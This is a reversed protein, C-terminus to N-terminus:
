KVNIDAQYIAILESIAKALAIVELKTSTIHFCARLCFPNELDRIWISKNGLEKVFEKTSIKKNISFSVIGSPPSGTLLTKIEKNEQLISWFSHSLQRIKKLRIDEDGENNLLDLSCRLGALLPICSTAIEFRRADKHFYEIDQLNFINENKLSRWGIITPNAENLIRESVSLGGLGEPGCAWKHGTFSYIDAHQAAEKIPIQGFSQAADVLLYPHSPSESLLKGILEIPMITGINWLLHSIVVLRTRAKLSKQITELVEQDTAEQREAGKRLGRLPLIDIFLHQRRALEKCAALVGPHECDSILLRDGSSFPIGWLPLVCGSTVNETLAIRNIGVNCFSALYQKTSAIEKNIYPWISSTFPGLEQIREWSKIMALLSPKPLPGQGGYNFYLKNSLAPMTKRLSTM